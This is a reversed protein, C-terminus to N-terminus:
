KLKFHEQIKINPKEIDKLFQKTGNKNIQYLKGNEEIILPVETESAKLNAKFTGLIAAGIIAGLATGEEHNKSLIAGLTAGIIGGAILSQLIEDDNKM